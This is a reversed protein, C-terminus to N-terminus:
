VLTAVPRTGLVALSGRVQWTSPCLASGGVRPITSTSNFDVGTLQGGSLPLNLGTLNGGYLCPGVITAFQIGFNPSSITLTTINPLSGSFSQYRLAIGALVTGAGTLWGGSCGSVTGAITGQDVGPTKSVTRSSTAVMLLFNCMWGGNMTLRGGAGISTASLSIGRSAVATGSVALATIVIATTILMSRIMRM